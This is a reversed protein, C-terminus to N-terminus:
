LLKQTKAQHMALRVYYPHGGVENTLRRIAFDDWDLEYFNALTKIQEFGLEKLVIPSRSKFLLYNINSFTNVNTSQTIILKLKSWHCDKKAKEHWDHLLKFFEESVKQHYFLCDINDLALIVGNKIESLICNAFYDTCKNSHNVTNKDWYYTLKIELNLQVSVMVSLWRLLKGTDRITEGDVSNFDLYVKKQSRLKEQKFLHKILSTKGMWKAGEIQILAGPQLITECCIQELPYRKIYTTSNLAILGKFLLINDTTFLKALQNSNPELIAQNYRYWERKLATKFNTKSVEVKLATALNNWLKHGIDRCLYSSTYGKAEAIEKYTYNMWAGRLVLTEVDNLHEGTHLFILADAAQLATEWTFDMCIDM